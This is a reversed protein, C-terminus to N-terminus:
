RRSAIADDEPRRQYLPWGAGVGFDIAAQALPVPGQELPSAPDLGPLPVHSQGGLERSQGVPLGGGVVQGGQSRVQRNLLYSDALCGSEM